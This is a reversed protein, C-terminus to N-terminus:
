YKAAEVSGACSVPFVLPSQPKWTLSEGGSIGPFPASPKFYVWSALPGIPLGRAICFVSFFITDLISFSFTKVGFDAITEPIEGSLIIFLQSCKHNLIFHTWSTRKKNWYLLYHHLMSFKELVRIFIPVLVTM